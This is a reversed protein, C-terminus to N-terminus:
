FDVIGFYWVYGCGIAIIIITLFLGIEFKNEFIKRSNEGRAKFFLPMGLVYMLSSIALYKIGGAYIMWVAYTVSLSGKVLEYYYIKKEQIILKVSFM